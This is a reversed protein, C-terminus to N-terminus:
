QETKVHNKLYDNMEKQLALLDPLVDKIAEDNREKVAKLFSEQVMEHKEKWAEGKQVHDKLKGEKKLEKYKKILSERENVILRWEEKLEPQYRDILLDYYFNFHPRLADHRLYYQHYVNNEHNDRKVAPSPEEASTNMPSILSFAIVIIMMLSVVRNM